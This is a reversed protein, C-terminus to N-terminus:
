ILGQCSAMLNKLGVTDAQMLVLLGVLEQTKGENALYMRRAEEVSVGLTSAYIQLAALVATKANSM